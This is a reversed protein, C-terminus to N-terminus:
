PLFGVGRQWLPQVRDAGLLAELSQRIFAGIQEDVKTQLDLYRAYTYRSIPTNPLYPFPTIM